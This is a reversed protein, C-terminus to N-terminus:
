RRAPGSSPAAAPSGSVGGAARRLAAVDVIRIERLRVHLCGARHLRTLMHSVTEIRLGLYSGIDLRSMPLHLRDDPLGRVRLRDSLDLLFGAMRAEADRQNLTRRMAQDHLIQASMLQHFRRQLLPTAALADELLDYPLACVRAEELVLADGGHRGSAIADLGLLDGPFAFGTVRARGPGARTGTRVCGSTVAYLAVFPADQQFLWDGAPVSRPAASAQCAGHWACMACTPVAPHLPMASMPPNEADGPRATKIGRLGARAATRNIGIL